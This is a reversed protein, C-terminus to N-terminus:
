TVIEALEAQGCDRLRKKEAEYVIREGQVGTRERRMAQAAGKSQRALEISEWDPESVYDTLSAQNIVRRGLVYLYSHIDVLSNPEHGREQLRRQLEDAFVLLPRYNAWSVKRRTM